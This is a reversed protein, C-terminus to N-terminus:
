QTDNVHKWVIMYYFMFVFNTGIVTMGLHQPYKKDRCKFTNRISKLSSNNNHSINITHYGRLQNIVEVMSNINTNTQEKDTQKDILLM